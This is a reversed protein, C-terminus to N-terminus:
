AFVENGAEQLKIALYLGVCIQMFLKFPGDGAEIKKPAGADNGSGAVIGDAGAEVLVFAADTFPISKLPQLHRFQASSASQSDFGSRM